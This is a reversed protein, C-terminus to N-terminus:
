IYIKLQQLTFFADGEGIKSISISNVPIQFIFILNLIFISLIIIILGLNDLNCSNKLKQLIM